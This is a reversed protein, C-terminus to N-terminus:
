SIIWHSLSHTESGLDTEQSKEQAGKGEAQKNQGKLHTPKQKM